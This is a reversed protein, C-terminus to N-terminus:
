EAPTPVLGRAITACGEAAKALTGSRRMMVVLIWDTDIALCNVHWGDFYSTWGNKISVRAAVDAPLADIIGWRGGEVAGSVQDDVSGRVLRMASRVWDTWAAGAARGDALCLGYAVADVASLETLSWKDPEIEVDSLGCTDELRQVLEDGGGLQYYKEALPDNSDVIVLTLEDLVAPTPQRGAEAERRLYDSVIWPKIMSEVTNRGTTRNSTGTIAGTRRDLLAWSSFKAGEVTLQDPDPPAVLRFAPPTPSPTASADPAPGGCGALLALAAATATWFRAVRM